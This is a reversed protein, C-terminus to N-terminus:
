PSVTVQGADLAIEYYGHGDWPLEVGNQKVTGGSVTVRLYRGPPFNAPLTWKWTKDTGSSWHTDLTLWALCSPSMHISVMEATPAYQRPWFANEDAVVIIDPLSLVQVQVSGLM